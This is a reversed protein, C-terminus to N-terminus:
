SPMFLPLPMAPLAAYLPSLAYSAGAAAGYLFARGRAPQCYPTAADPPFGPAAAFFRAAAFCLPELTFIGFSFRSFFRPCAYPLTSPLLM